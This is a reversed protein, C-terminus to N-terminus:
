KKRGIKALAAKAQKICDDDGSTHDAYSNYAAKILRELADALETVLDSDVFTKEEDAKIVNGNGSLFITRNGTNKITFSVADTKLPTEMGTMLIYKDEM